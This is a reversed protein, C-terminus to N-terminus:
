RLSWKHWLPRGDVDALNTAGAVTVLKSANAQAAGQAVDVGRAFAADGGQCGIVVDARADAVAGAM